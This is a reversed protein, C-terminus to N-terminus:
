GGRISDKRVCHHLILLIVKVAIGLFFRLRTIVTRLLIIRVLM